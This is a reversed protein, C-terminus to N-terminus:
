GPHPGTHVRQHFDPEREQKVRPAEAPLPRIMVALQNASCTRDSAPPDTDDCYVGPCRNRFVRDLDEPLFKREEVKGFTFLYRDDVKRVARAAHCHLRCGDRNMNHPREDVPM